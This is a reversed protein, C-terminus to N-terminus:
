KKMEVDLLADQVNTLTQRLEQSIISIEDGAEKARGSLGIKETDRENDILYKDYHQEISEYEDILSQMLTIIKIREENLEPVYNALQDVKKTLMESRKIYESCKFKKERIVNMIEPDDSNEKASLAYSISVMSSFIGLIVDLLEDTADIFEEIKNMLNTTYFFKMERQMEYKGRLEITTMQQENQQKIQIKAVFYVVSAGIIAGVYSGWFGIWTDVAGLSFTFIENKILVDLIFPFLM